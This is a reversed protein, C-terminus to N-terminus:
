AKALMGRMVFGFSCSVSWKSLMDSGSLLKSLFM